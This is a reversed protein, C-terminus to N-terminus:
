ANQGIMNAAIEDTLIGRERAQEFTQLTDAIGDSM